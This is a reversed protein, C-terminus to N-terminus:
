NFYKYVCLSNKFSLLLFCSLFHALSRFLCRGWSSICISFLCIIRHETDYTMLSIFVLVVLHWHVGNSHGCDPACVAGFVPSPQRWLSERETGTLICFLVIVRSLLKAAKCLASCVTYCDHDKTNVWLVQFSMDVCFNM